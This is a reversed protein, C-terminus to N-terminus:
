GEAETTTTSARQTGAPINPRVNYGTAAPPADEEAEADDAGGESSHDDPDAAPHEPEHHEITREGRAASAVGLTVVGLALVSLIGAIANASLQPRTAILVGIAFVAAGLATAAWVAGLESSTLFVRSFAFVTGGAILIGALPVEYPALVRNRVARNTAPDGTAKDSWALVMWEVLVVLLVFFGAVFMVNSIVLGLVILSAGFAALVPWYALHAPAVAPPPLDTGALQAQASPNADRAAVSVLGLFIALLGIGVLITYGLHDGVAGHYGGTLPGLGSGGTTWGYAAAFVLSVLGLGLFWKSGTTFM